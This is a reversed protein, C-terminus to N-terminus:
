AEADLRARVAHTLFWAASMLLYVGILFPIGEAASDVIQITLDLAGPSVTRDVIDSFHRNTVSQYSSVTFTAGIEVLLAAMLWLFAKLFGDRAILVRYRVEHNSPAFSTLFTGAALSLGALTGSVPISFATRDLEAFIVFVDHVLESM